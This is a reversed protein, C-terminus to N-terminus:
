LKRLWNLVNIWHDSETDVRDTLSHGNGPYIICRTEVGRAQLLHYYDVAQSMPVRKDNAGLMLLLRRVGNATFLFSSANYLRRTSM